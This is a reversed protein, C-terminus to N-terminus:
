TLDKHSLPFSTGLSTGTVSCFFKIFNPSSLNKFGPKMFDETSVVETEPGSKLWKDLSSLSLARLAARPRGGL